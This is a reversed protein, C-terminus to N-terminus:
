PEHPRLDTGLVRRVVRLVEELYATRDYHASEPFEPSLIESEIEKWTVEDPVQEAIAHLRPDESGVRAVSPALNMARRAAGVALREATIVLLLRMLTPEIM